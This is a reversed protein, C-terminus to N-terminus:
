YRHRAYHTQHLAKIRDLEPHDHIWMGTMPSFHVVFFEDLLPHCTGVRPQISQALKDWEADSMVPKDLVEYAYTAISLRIRRRTEVEIPSGWDSLDLERREDRIAQSSWLHRKSWDIERSM